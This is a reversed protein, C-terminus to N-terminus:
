QIQRFAERCELAPKGSSICKAINEQTNQTCQSCLVIVMFFTLVGTGLYVYIDKM